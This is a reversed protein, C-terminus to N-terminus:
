QGALAPTNRGVLPRFSAEFRRRKLYTGLAIHVGVLMLALPQFAIGVFLAGVMYIIHTNQLAIALPAVWEEDPRKRRRYLMQIRQLHFIGGGHILLWILLGPYGQEGLMEFYGSHYARAADVIQKTDNEPVFEEFPADPDKKEKIDYKIKNQLYANFGGGMPHDKAFEWTWKWVAIRTSASEDQEYNQITDTRKTLSQPLFPITIAAMLIAGGIYAMRYRAHRILLIGLVAICVIGTRTQTGIPILLSAFILAAAYLRVMQSPKFITGHKALWLIIPILAIAITSITSGEFLGNNEDILLVLLGYGGGGAMTKIGGTVILASTCLIITLLLAEIRLKTTLTLPLFAAFVLAKWVWNWKELAAVPEVAVTTTYGSYVLLLVLLAWRPSIRVNNKDDSVLFGLVAFGFVILSLPVSNLMFYSLRQPSCIDIYAYALTFLFPRKFALLLIAAVYGVFILDRM